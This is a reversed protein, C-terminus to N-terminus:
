DGSDIAFHDGCKKCTYEHYCNSTTQGHYEHLCGKGTAPDARVLGTATLSMTQGGCNNCVVTDDSERYTAYRYHRAGEPAPIRKAGNCKPCTLM